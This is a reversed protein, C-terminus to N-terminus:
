APVQTFSITSTQRVLVLGNSVVDDITTSTAGNVECRNSTLNYEYNMADDTQGFQIFFQRTSAYTYGIIFTKTQNKGTFEKSALLTNPYNQDKILITFNSYFTSGSTIDISYALNPLDVPECIVYGGMLVYSLNNIECRIAMYNDYENILDQEDIGSTLAFIPTNSSTATNGDVIKVSYQADTSLEGLHRKFVKVNRSVFSAGSTSSAVRIFVAKLKLGEPIDFYSWAEIIASHRAMLGGYASTGTTPYTTPDYIAIDPVTSDENPLWNQPHIKIVRYPTRNTDGTLKTIPDYLCTTSPANPFFYDSLQYPSHYSRQQIRLNKQYELRGSIAEDGVLDTQINFRQSIGGMFTATPRNHNSQNFNGIFLDGSSYCLTTDGNTQFTGTFTKSGTITSPINGSSITGSLTLTSCSINNANQIDYASSMNLNGTLQLGNFISGSGVATINGSTATINGSTSLNGAGTIHFNGGGTAQKFGATFIATDTGTIVGDVDLDATANIHATNITSSNITSVGISAIDTITTSGDGDINNNTGSINIKLSGTEGGNNFQYFYINDIQQTRITANSIFRIISGTASNYNNKGNFEDVNDLNGYSTGHHLNINGGRTYIGRGETDIGVFNPAPAPTNSQFVIENIGTIDTNGDGVINGNANINGSISLSNASIDDILSINTAGDGQIDGAAELNGTIELDSIINGSGTATITQPIFGNFSIENGTIVLPNGASTLASPINITRANTGDYTQSTSGTFTLTELNSYEINESGDDKLRVVQKANGTAGNIELKEFINITDAEIIDAGDITRNSNKNSSM